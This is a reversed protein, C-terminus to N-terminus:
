DGASRDTAGRSAPDRFLAATRYAIAAARWGDVLGVLLLYDEFPILVEVVGPAEPDGVIAGRADLFRWRPTGDAELAFRAARLQGQEELPEVGQPLTPRVDPPPTASCCGTLGLSLALLLWGLVFGRSFGEFRKRAPRALASSSKSTPDCSPM